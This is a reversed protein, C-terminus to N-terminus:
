ICCHNFSPHRLSSLKSNAHSQTFVMCGGGMHQLNGHGKHFGYWAVWDKRRKEGKRKVRQTTMLRAFERCGDGLTSPRICWADTASIDTNASLWLNTVLASGQFTNLYNQVSREGWFLGEVSPIRDVSSCIELQNGFCQGLFYESLQTCKKWRLFSGWSVSNQLSLFLDSTQFVLTSCHAALKQQSSLASRYSTNYRFLVEQLPHQLLVSSDWLAFCFKRDPISYHFLVIELHKRCVALRKRPWKPGASRLFSSKKGWGGGKKRFWCVSLFVFGVCWPCLFWRFTIENKSWSTLKKSNSACIYKTVKTHESCHQKILFPAQCSSYHETLLVPANCTPYIIM